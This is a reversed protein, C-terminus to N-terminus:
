QEETIEGLVYRDELRELRERKQAEPKVKDIQHIILERVKSPNVIGVFVLEVSSSGPTNLYLDGTKTLRNIIGIQIHTDSIKELPADSHTIRLLGRKSYVRRNTIIYYANFYPVILIIGFIIVWVFAYGITGDKVARLFESPIRLHNFYFNLTKNANISTIKKWDM